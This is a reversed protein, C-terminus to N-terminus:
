RRIGIGTKPCYGVWPLRGEAAGCAGGEWVLGSRVGWVIVRNQQLVWLVCLGGDAFFFAHGEAAGGGECRNGWESGVRRRRWSHGDGIWQGAMGILQWWLFGGGVFVIARGEEGGCRGRKRCIGGGSNGGFGGGAFFTACGEAV